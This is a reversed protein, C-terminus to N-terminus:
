VVALLSLDVTQTETDTIPLQWLNNWYGALLKLIAASHLRATIL